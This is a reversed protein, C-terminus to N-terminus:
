TVGWAQKHAKLKAEERTCGWSDALVAYADVQPEKTRKRKHTDTRKWKIAVLDRDPTDAVVLELSFRKAGRYVLATFGPHLQRDSNMQLVEGVVHAKATVEDAFTWIREPHRGPINSLVGTWHASTIQSFKMPRVLMVRPLPLFKIM